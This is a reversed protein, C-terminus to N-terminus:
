ICCPMKICFKNKGKNSNPFIDFIKKIDITNNKLSNIDFISNEYKNEKSLKSYSKINILEIPKTFQNRTLKSAALSNTKFSNDNTSIIQSTISLQAQTINQNNIIRSTLNNLKSTKYAHNVIKKDFINKNEKLKSLILNTNIKNNIKIIKNNTQSKTKKFVHTVEQEKNKISNVCINKKKNQLKHFDELKLLRTENLDLMNSDNTLTALYNLKKLSNTHNKKDIIYSKIKELLSSNMSDKNKVSSPNHSKAKNIFSYKSSHSLKNLHIGKFKSNIKSKNITNNIPIQSYTNIKASTNSQINLQFKETVSICSRNSMQNSLRRKSESKKILGFKISETTTFSLNM